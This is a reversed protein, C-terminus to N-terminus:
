QDSMTSTEIRNAVQNGHMLVGCEQSSSRPKRQENKVKTKLDKYVLFKKPNPQLGETPKVNECVRELNSLGGGGVMMGNGERHQQNWFRLRDSPDLPFLRALM